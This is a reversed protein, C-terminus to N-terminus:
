KTEALWFPKATRLSSEARVFIVDVQFLAGDSERRHQGCIDYVLFGADTMFGVVEAILPAGENYPLLAAELLVVETRLLTERAGRLVELEYGQVDLKLLLPNATAAGSLLSDLTTMPLSVNTRPLATAEALVSSGTGMVNFPVAPRQERGLLAIRHTARSGLRSEALSLASANDPNADILVVSSSPFIRHAHEAWDGVYAGADVLTGPTFGNRAINTLSAWMDLAGARLLIEPAQRARTFGFARVRYSEPLSRFLSDAFRALLRAM